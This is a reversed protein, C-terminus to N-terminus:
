PVLRTTAFPPPADLCVCSPSCRLHACSLHQWSPMSALLTHLRQWSLCSGLELVAALIIGHWEIIGRWEIAGHWEIIGAVRPWEM